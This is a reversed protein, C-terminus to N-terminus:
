SPAHRWSTRRRSSCPTARPTIDRGRLRGRLSKVEGQWPPPRRVFHAPHPYHTRSATHAGEPEELRRSCKGGERSAASATDGGQLPLCLSSLARVSNIEVRRRPMVCPATAVM